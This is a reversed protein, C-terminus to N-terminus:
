LQLRPAGQTRFTQDQTIFVVFSAAGHHTSSRQGTSYPCETSTRAPSAKAIGETGCWCAAEREHEVWFRRGRSKSGRCAPTAWRMSSKLLVGTAGHMGHAKSPIPAA